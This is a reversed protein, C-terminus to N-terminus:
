TRLISLAAAQNACSVCDVGVFREPEHAFVLGDM